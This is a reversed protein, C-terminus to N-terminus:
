FLEAPMAMTSTDGARVQALHYDAKPLLKDFYFKALYSKQEAFQKDEAGVAKDLMALWYFGYLTFGFADLFDVASANILAPQTLKQENITEAVNVLADLRACVASVKVADVQTFERMQAKLEAVFEKLTAL